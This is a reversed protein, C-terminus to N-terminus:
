WCLGPHLSLVAASTLSVIGQYPHGWSGEGVGWVDTHYHSEQTCCVPCAAFPSTFLCSWQYVVKCSINLDRVGNRLDWPCASPCPNTNLELILGDGFLDMWLLLFCRWLILDDISLPPLSMDAMSSVGLIDLLFRLLSISCTLPFCGHLLKKSDMLTEPPQLHFQCFHQWFGHM